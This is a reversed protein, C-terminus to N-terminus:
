NQEFEDETIVETRFNNKANGNVINIELSYNIFDTSNIKGFDYINTSKEYAVNNSFKLRKQRGDNKEMLDKGYALKLYYKGQPIDNVTFESNEPVYVCRICKNKDANMIKIISSFGRGMKIDFYNDQIGYVSNVGYDDRLECGKNEVFTWGESIMQEQLATLTSDRSATSPSNGCTCSALLVSFLFYFYHKM